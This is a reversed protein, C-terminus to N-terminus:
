IQDLTAFYLGDQRVQPRAGETEISPGDLRELDTNVEIKESGSHRAKLFDGAAQGGIDSPGSIQARYTDSCDSDIEGAGRGARDRSILSCIRL